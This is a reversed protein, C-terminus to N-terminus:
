QKASDEANLWKLSTVPWCQISIAVGAPAGMDRYVKTELKLHLAPDPVEATERQQRNDACVKLFGQSLMSAMARMAEARDEPMGGFDMIQFKVNEDLDIQSSDKEEVVKEYFKTFPAEPHTLWAHIQYNKAEIICPFEPLPPKGELGPHGQALGDDVGLVDWFDGMSKCSNFFESTIAWNHAHRILQQNKITEIM